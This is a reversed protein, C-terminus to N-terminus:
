TRSSTLAPLRVEFMSRPDHVLLSAGQAQLLERAIVLALRPPVPGDGSALPERVEVRVVHEVPRGPTEDHRDDLTADLTAGPRDDPKLDDKDDRRDDRRDDPWDDISLEVAGPSRALETAHELLREFARQLREADARVWRETSSSPPRLSADPARTALLARLMGSLEVLGMDLALHGQVAAAVDRLEHLLRSQQEVCRRIADLAEGRRAPDDITARLVGEWLLLTSLPQRLDHLVLELLEHPDSPSPPRGATSSADRM